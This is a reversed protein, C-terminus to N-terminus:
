KKVADSNVPHSLEEGDMTTLILAGGSFVKKVVYPGEYNPTWKGRSDKHIPLIKKLVLDGERFERVRVKKDFARKLRKQYLQGHCLSTLRKEDILNLQDFRNQIWEAEELKTEMLIRMSPIEVEIPLVAEMGYVLIKKINKNAAEVAGNMKPRYPSSNHHEIKFSECLEKMTKNNLNTGNDTIIRSPIGYRCIIEKKLFRAVVQKTVNAYSAAEVWKTFYDIAVLIFRHGNSAKPEIAGIMDIGWMSFPWPSTLVNVARLIKKAMAHGNAHTGFSGEHIEKILMDAEREDVCRLLIMDHNRKYLVGNSLFFKSALKRLTKKDLTTADTPYEQNQLFCKIDHFWPKGDAEEEVSQCYAPEVKREIQILPAENHFRVQYMSALMALADAIQNETRPIHRFTIEDFYKILEMVHARYPILKTDRTEWEGKVQYIVLASDGCVELIKIRLDIAAEIGLICAEYEAINNTCDFCLRADFMLKWRSGPEPGEDPGPIECDKVVMIDEDPFDFKLSQYDEVPQNALYDSLVSGKIAKQSVYQIDYESLLMQWRALRGTLAPKEFIYKIPDMKSILLTTHCIMYQRLRRAAWALACCTKELLSYRTECDTFRKSLYYIAHEKRGTEDHQGLVCGMSKELVTLYMFLPRGQVPPILIPPEQLYQGVREFAMQCDSNWEVAQDKRLLKFIPECTATMHSIFRSIYNLRGLFGRVERETCPAPMEQIARVKDPDVEIGRQSVIFGLLKGSRVGFTCKAPNLRLRFKRLREFLKQLHDIHDEESQSKAIMDDVYVEIEKHMMDHFLTVMARQYTAGANKLGFPMVKYCFTGWPTIFTTKEMDEPDMKIQNYGSFGDMFSFVAFRATNDVLTDIHPLPFDDKPSAKNLDRYDVCMRVKGDKKPVPVINAVWQPYKAVALFGADFQRKVEDCIKLAMDPRARRLKQKVPPCDPQLPIKHVVIDTDLGPMDQYSWAFVDVYEHLLKILREKISAELTTGVKVEKKDEQGWGAPGGSEVASKASKLSAFSLSAKEVPDKVEELTANSIELAQFSTKAEDTQVAPQAGGREPTPNVNTTGRAPEQPNVDFNPTYIRGSRTMRSTGAINTIDTDVNEVGKKSETAEPKGDVVGDVMTIGYKWPVAKTSEFPFPTPMCVVVPSPHVVDRRHYTVEFPEPINFVPEIVSIEENTTPGCIQLIGQNMLNQIDNRVVKCGKPQIACEECSDHCTDILRARVLGAHLALLPTKVDEVNKIVCVDSADEVANVDGHAPLPNNKVNPGVDRFSLIKKEVLNLLQRRDPAMDMNYKYHQIFADSLDQFCRIRSQDLSLYWKSPAGRLSDQFCHIMLKDDEVHAAMKRYYMILHSKPCSHGEYKDFDPTRFKAPIVLGSVLCMEKATAGFVQDGEMARLRKELLQYNEKMGRLDEQREEDEDSFDPAHQQDEFYPQVHARVLPPAFTHVVPHNENITPLPATQQASPAFGPAGEVAPTFGPPLGYTPWTTPVARAPQPEITPCFKIFNYVQHPTNEPCMCWDAEQLKEPLERMISSAFGSLKLFKGKWETYLGQLDQIIRVDEAKTAEIDRYLNRWYRCENLLVMYAADQDGGELAQIRADARDLHHKLRTCVRESEETKLKERELADKYKQITNELERTRIESILRAERKMELTLELTKNLKQIRLLARDLEEEKSKFVSKTSFLAQGFKERRAESERARKNSVELEKDKKQQDDKLNGNEVSVRGLRIRLDANELELEKIRNNLKEVDEPLIPEPEPIVPYISPDFPYPLKIIQVRERVWCIYPEQAIVNRRGLEKGKRIVAQWSRKIKKVMPHDMEVGHLIFPELAEVKPPGNMPYGHQRLSLMPNYNICGKTGILSVNPFDGISVIVNETEWDRIYWKVHSSTLSALKQFPKLEKSVFPGEEPM